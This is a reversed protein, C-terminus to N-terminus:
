PRSEHFPLGSKYLEVRERLVDVPATNTKASALDLAKTATSVAEPFRGAEAYAAALTSQISPNGSGSLRDAEQSLEVARAGNRVSPDPWTALVWALNNLTLVDAPRISLAAQYHQIAEQPRGQRLLLQALNGQAPANGPDSAVAKQFCAIAENTQGARLHLLGLNNRAQAFDPRLELAKIFHIMAQEERGGRVLANALAYQTDASDPQIQAAQQFHVIADDLRGKILFAEGLRLRAPANNPQAALAQQYHGIAEDVKGTQLLINALNNHADAFAPNLEIAKRLLVVAENAEGKVLLAYALNNLLDQNNPQLALGQRFRAIAQDPHGQRLLVSGLNAHATANRPELELAKEFQAIAEGVRARQLLANGLNNHAEAFGPQIEITKDLHSIAEDLRGESRLIVALNNHALFAGPSNELTARWLTEVDSYSRSQSWTLGALILVLGACLLNGPARGWIGWRILVLAMGASWLTIIGVSALYQFHDAVFSYRFPYVNLFGLAPFLTGVFFLAGALLGRSRRWLLWGALLTALPFLYQWAAGPDIKWRPYMFALHAPWLLKGLYFWVARGAILCRELLGFDFAAGEASVVKREFWATFLGAFIGALFFPALPRADRKWSLRSRKWWFVLLLAAPLTAIVTKSLLGLGFLCLATAYAGRSRTRDFRLYALASGFYFVGSLTNKLESIWAVSEVQVPHLAFIAAALFAGPIELVRLIRLLLWASAAHLLINVLHCGLTSDGWLLHELWFVSYAFPYYQQTTGPQTWIRALGSLSRLAPPTVHADDDWLLKGQWVPSYALLTAAVLLAGLVWERTWWGRESPLFNNPTSEVARM